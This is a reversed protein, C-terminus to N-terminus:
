KNKKELLLRCVLYMPSQLESTHEESRRVHQFFHLSDLQALLDIPPQHLAYQLPVAPSALLAARELVKLNMVLCKAAVLPVIREVVEHSETGVAVYGFM